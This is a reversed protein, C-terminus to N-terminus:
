ERGSDQRAASAERMRALMEPTPRYPHSACAHGQYRGDHAELVTRMSSSDTALQEQTPLARYLARLVWDPRDASPRVSVKFRGEDITRAAAEAQDRTAFFALFDVSEIRRVPMGHCLTDEFGGHIPPPPNPTAAGACAAALLLAAATPAPRM